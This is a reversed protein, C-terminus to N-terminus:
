KIRIKFNESRLFDIFHLNVQRFGYIRYKKQNVIMNVKKRIIELGQKNKYFFEFEVQDKRFSLYPKLGKKRHDYINITDDLIDILCYITESNNGYNKVRFIPIKTGQSQYSIYQDYSFHPVDKININKAHAYLIFAIVFLGFPPIMLYYKVDSFDDISLSLIFFFIALFLGSGGLIIAILKFEKMHAKRILERYDEQSIIDKMM